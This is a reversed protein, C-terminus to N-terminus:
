AADQETWGARRLLEVAAALDQQKADGTTPTRGLASYLVLRDADHEHIASV